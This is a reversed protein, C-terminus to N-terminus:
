INPSTLIHNPRDFDHPYHKPKWDCFPLSLFGTTVSPLNAKKKCQRLVPSSSFSVKTQNKPKEKRKQKKGLVKCTECIMLLIKYFLQLFERKTYCKYNTATTLENIM